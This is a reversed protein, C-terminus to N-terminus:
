APQQTEAPVQDAPVQAAETAAVPSKRRKGFWALWAFLSAPRLGDLYTYVVPVVVLTLLTSTILGGIVARAMPARMEAGAGIAFALPMM